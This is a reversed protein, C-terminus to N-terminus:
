KEMPYRLDWQKRIEDLTSIIELSESHPMIPSELEGERLCRMVEMAEYNYGNGEFPLQFSEKKKGAVMASTARWFSPIHISGETGIIRAEQPTNTRVASSLIALEGKDYGFIMAAQEDVGSQGIHAISVMSSPKKGYVMYALAVTYVGVDLLSGGALNLDFLRGRPDFGARFGFDASIMRVEGILGQALWERVRVMVPLFRTWMAEMFFRRCQAATRIMEEAEGCNVALPKECLVAKGASLCLIAHEKHFNHPTAVYIVDVEEDRVLAEYGVHIKKAHYREAFAKAREADRSGVAALKADPLVSLGKAFSGAISGCGLIGWSIPKSM